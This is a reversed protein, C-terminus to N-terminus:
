VKGSRRSAMVALLIKSKLGDWDVSITGHIM